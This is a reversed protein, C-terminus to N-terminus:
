APRSAVLRACLADLERALQEREMESLTEIAQVVDFLPDALLLSRARPTLELEDADVAATVVCLLGKRRLCSIARSVLEAPAGLYSAVRGVTRGRNPAKALYRLIAWQGASLDRLRQESHVERALMDLLRALTEANPM